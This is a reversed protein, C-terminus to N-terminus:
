GDNFTPSRGAFRQAYARMCACVCPRVSTSCPHPLLISILAGSGTAPAFLFFLSPSRSLPCPFHPVPPIIFIHTDSACLMCLCANVSLVDVSHSFSSFLSFGRTCGPFPINVHHQAEVMRRIAITFSVCSCRILLLARNMLLLRFQRHVRGVCLHWWEHLCVCVCM